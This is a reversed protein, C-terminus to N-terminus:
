HEAFSVTHGDNASLVFVLNFPPPCSHTVSLAVDGSVQKPEVGSYLGSLSTKSLALCKQHIGVSVILAKSVRLCWCVLQLFSTLMRIFFNLLSWVVHLINRFLELIQSQFGWVVAPCIVGSERAYNFCKETQM